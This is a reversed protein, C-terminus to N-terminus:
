KSKLKLIQNTLEEIESNASKAYEKISDRLHRVKNCYMKEHKNKVISESLINFEKELCIASKVTHLTLM